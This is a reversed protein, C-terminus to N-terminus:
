VDFVRGGKDESSRGDHLACGRVTMGYPNESHLAYGKMTM